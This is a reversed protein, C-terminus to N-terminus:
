MYKKHRFYKLKPILCHLIFQIVQYEAFM